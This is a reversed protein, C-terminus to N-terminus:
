AGRLRVAPSVAARLQRRSPGILGERRAVRAAAWFTTTTAAVTLCLVTGSKVAVFTTLSESQLLFLTLGAKALCVFAWMLTLRWFLQQVRPRKAIDEAMPYFDGAVRAVIPRASALSGLFLSAVVIDTVVPQLFYVFTGGTAFAFATKLTLGIVALVLLGSVRRRTAMRWTMAGYCWVLAAVFAAWVSVTVLCVYFLAAPIVNAVLLSLSLRGIIARVRPPAIESKSHEAEAQREIASKPQGPEAREITSPGAHEAVLTV